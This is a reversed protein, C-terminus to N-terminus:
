MGFLSSLLGKKGAVKGDAKPGQGLKPTSNQSVREWDDDDDRHRPFHVFGTSSLEIDGREHLSVTLKDAKSMQATPSAKQPGKPREHSKVTQLDPTANHTGALTSPRCSQSSMQQKKASHQGQKENMDQELRTASDNVHMAIRESALDKGLGSKPAIYAEKSLLNEKYAEKGIGFEKSDRIAKLAKGDNRLRQISCNHMAADVMKVAELVTSESSEIGEKAILPRSTFNGSSRAPKQDVHM